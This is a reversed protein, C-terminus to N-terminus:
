GRGRLLPALGRPPSRRSTGLAEKLPHGGFIPRPSAVLPVLIISSGKDTQILQQKNSTRQRQSSWLHLMEVEAPSTM